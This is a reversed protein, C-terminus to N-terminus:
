LNWNTHVNFLSPDAPPGSPGASATVPPGESPQAQANDRSWSTNAQLMMAHLLAPNKAAKAYAAALAAADAAAKARKAKDKLAQTMADLGGGGGGGGGGGDYTPAPVNYTNAVVPGIGMAALTMMTILEQTQAATLKQGAFLAFRARSQQDGSPVGPFALRAVPGLAVGPTNTEPM